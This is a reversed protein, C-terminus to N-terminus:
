MNNTSEGAVLQLSGHVCYEPFAKDEQRTKLADNNPSDAMLKKQSTAVTSGALM